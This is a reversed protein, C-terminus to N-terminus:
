YVTSLLMGICGPPFREAFGNLYEVPLDPLIRM